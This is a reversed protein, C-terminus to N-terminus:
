EFDTMVSLKTGIDTLVRDQHRALDRGTLRSIKAIRYAVTKQHIGMRAATSVQSCDCEFYAHLTKLLVQRSQEPEALLDGLIDQSVKRMDAKTRLNILLGLVGSEAYHSFRAGKRHRAVELAVMAERFASPLARIDNCPGSIGVTPELTPFERRLAELLRRTRDSLQETQTVKCVMRLQNGRAGVMHATRGLDSLRTRDLIRDHLHTEKEGMPGGTSAINGLEMVLMCIPGKVAIHLERSRDLAAARVAETGETLDWLVAQLTESRERAVRRRELLHMATALAVNGLALRTGEQPVAEGHWVIWGLMESGTLIPQACIEGNSVKGVLPEESTRRSKSLLSRIEDAIADKSASRRYNSV